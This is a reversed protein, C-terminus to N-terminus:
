KISIRGRLITPIREQQGEIHEIGLRQEIDGGIGPIVINGNRISDERMYMFKFTSIIREPFETLLNPIADKYVVPSAIITTKPNISDFLNTIQTAVTCSSSIISKIIIMTECNDIPEEYKMIIPAIGIVGITYRKHWFVTLSPYIHISALSELVGRTLFDADESTCVLKIATKRNLILKGLEEGLCKGISYLATGYQESPLQPSSLRNLYEVGRKIIYKTM